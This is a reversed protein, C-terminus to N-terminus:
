YYGMPMSPAKIKKTPRPFPKRIGNKFIVPKYPDPVQKHMVPSNRYREVHAKFGQHPGSWCVQCVKLTPLSWQSFGDFIKWLADVAETSQLNVFAYGLNADRAFDFPMYVFDYAGAFGNDDLLKLFMNRTYNNPINRLM